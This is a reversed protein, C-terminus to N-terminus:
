AISQQILHKLAEIIGYSLLGATTGDIINKITLLHKSIFTNDTCDNVYYSDIEKITKNINKLNEEDLSLQSISDKLESIFKQVKRDYENKNSEIITVTNKKGGTINNVNASNTINVSQNTM